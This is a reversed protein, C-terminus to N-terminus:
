VDATANELDAVGRVGPPEAIVPNGAAINEVDVGVGRLGRDHGVQSVGGVDRRVGEVADDEGLRQVQDEVHLGGDGGSWRM